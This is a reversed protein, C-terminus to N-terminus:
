YRYDLGANIGHAWLATDRFVFQPHLPIRDDVPDAGPLLSPDVELGPDIADGPRVVRSWYLFTYGTTVRLRDTLNYGGTFGIQPIVSLQNRQYTGINTAQALLGGDVDDSEGNVLTSGSVRAQQATNGIALRAQIELSWRRKEWDWILGLEGGTFRNSTSFGDNVVFTDGDNANPPFPYVSSDQDIAVLNEQIALNENLSAWRFGYIVDVHRTGGNFFPFLSCGTSCGGGTCGGGTGCTVCDGCQPDCSSSCCLNRRIHIGAMQFESSSDVDVTGQIGGPYTVKEFSPQGTVADVYPRGVGITNSITQTEPSNVFHENITGFGVYDGGIGLRGYDDFWYGLQIRYGSRPDSLIRGKGYITPVPDEVFTDPPQPTGQIVLPPVSAGEFWWLLYEGRVYWIPRSGFGCGGVACGRGGCVQGGCTPCGDFNMGNDLYLPSGGYGADIPNGQEDFMMGEGGDMMQASGGMIPQGSADFIPQGAPDMMPGGELVDGEQIPELPAALKEPTVGGASAGGAVSHENAPTPEEAAALRINDGARLSNEGGGYPSPPLDLQTALLTPGTDRRVTVTQGLFQNLDIQPTPEVYRRVGGYADILVFPPNGDGKNPNRVLKASWTPRPATKTPAVGRARSAVRDLPDSPAKPTFLSDILEGAAADSDNIQNPGDHPALANRFRPTRWNVPAQRAQGYARGAAGFDTQGITGACVLAAAIWRACRRLSRGYNM